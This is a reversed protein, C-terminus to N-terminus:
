WRVAGESRVIRYEIDYGESKREISEALRERDEPHVAELLEAVSRPRPRGWISEYAPSVYLIEPPDTARIFFAADIHDALQRFRLESETLASLTAEEETVDQAF